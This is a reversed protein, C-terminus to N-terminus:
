RPHDPRERSERPSAARSELWPLAAALRPLAEEAAEEGVAIHRRGAAFARLGFGGGASFDPEILITARSVAESAIKGQMLHFTTALLDALGPERGGEARRSPAAPRTLKVGIVIDAGFDVVVSTPVPSLVGGDVLLNPGVRQPPYIGPIACSALVAQWVLGETLVLERESLLDVATVGLPVPLEEIRKEGFHAILGARMGRDSLLSRRSPRARVLRATAQALGAEVDEPSLGEAHLAAVGAGVSTGAIYDIPIGARAFTRLVGIHAWGRISGGGLALGVQVGLLRRAARGIANRAAPALAGPTWDPVDFEADAIRLKVSGTPVAEVIQACQPPPVAGAPLDILAYGQGALAVQVARERAHADSEAIVEAPRGSHWAISDALADLLSAPVNRTGILRDLRSTARRQDSQLLRDALISGLNHLLRPSSAALSTFMEASVINIEMPERARITASVPRGTLLSVEGLVDGPGVRGIVQEVDMVDLVVVDASGTGVLYLGPPSDGEALVTAGAPFSKTAAVRLISDIEAPGLGAFLKPAASM